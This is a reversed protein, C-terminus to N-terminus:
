AEYILDYDENGNSCAGLSTWELWEHYSQASTGPIIYGAWSFRSDQEMNRMTIFALRGARTIYVGLNEVEILKVAM